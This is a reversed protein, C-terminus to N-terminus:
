RDPPLIDRNEDRSRPQEGGAHIGLGAAEDHQIARHAGHGLELLDDSAARADMLVGLLKIERQNIETARGAVEGVGVEVALRHLDVLGTFIVGDNRWVICRRDIFVTIGNGGLRSRILDDDILRGVDADPSVLFRRAFDIDIPYPGRDNGLAGTSRGCCHHRMKRLEAATPNPPTTSAIMAPM